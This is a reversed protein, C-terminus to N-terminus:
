SSSPPRSSSGLSRPRQDLEVSRARATQEAIRARTLEDVRAIEEDLVKILDPAGETMPSIREVAVALAALASVRRRLEDESPAPSAERREDGDRQGRGDGVRAEDQGGQVLTLVPRGVAPHQGYRTRHVGVSGNVDRM